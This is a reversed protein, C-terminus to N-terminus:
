EEAPDNTLLDISLIRRRREVKLEHVDLYLPGPFSSLLTLYDSAAQPTVWANISGTPRRKTPKEIFGLSFSEEFVPIGRGHYTRYKPAKYEDRAQVDKLTLSFEGPNIEEGRVWVSYEEGEREEPYTAEGQIELDAGFQYVPDEMSYFSTKPDRLAHNISSAVRLNYDKVKLGLFTHIEEPKSQRKNKSM